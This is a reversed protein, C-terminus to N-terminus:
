CWHPVALVVIDWGYGSRYADARAVYDRPLYYAQRKFALELPHTTAVLNRPDVSPDARRARSDAPLWGAMVQLVGAWSMFEVRYSFREPLDRIISAEDSATWSRAWLVCVAGCLLLSLASLYTFWKRRVANGERHRM